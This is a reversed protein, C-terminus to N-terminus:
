ARPYLAVPAQPSSFNKLESSCAGVLHCYKEVIDLQRCISSVGNVERCQGGSTDVFDLDEATRRTGGVAATGLSTDETKIEGAGYGCGMHFGAYTCEPMEVTDAAGPNTVFIHVEQYRCPEILSLSVELISIKIIPLPHPSIVLVL